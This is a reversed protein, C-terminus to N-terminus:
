EEPLEYRIVPVPEGRYDEVGCVGADAFGAAILMRHAAHNTRLTRAWVRSAGFHRRAHSAAAIIAQRGLGRNWRSSPGIAIGLECSHDDYITFDVYGVLEDHDTVALRRPDARIRDILDRHFQLNRDRDADCWDAATRFDEDMGWDALHDADEAVLPRLTIM